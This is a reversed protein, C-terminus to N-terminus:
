SRNLTFSTHSSVACALNQRFTDRCLIVSCNLKCLVILIKNRLLVCLAKLFLLLDELNAGCKFYCCLYM